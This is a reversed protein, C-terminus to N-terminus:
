IRRKNTRPPPSMWVSFGGVLLSLVGWFFFVWAGLFFGWFFFGGPGFFFFAGGLFCFFFGGFFLSFLCGGCLFGLFFFSLFVFVFFFFFFLFFFERRVFEPNAPPWKCPGSGKVTAQFADTAPPPPWSIGPNAISMRHLVGIKAGAHIYNGIGKSPRARRSRRQRLLTPPVPNHPPPPPSPPQHQPPTPPTSLTTHTHPPPPPPPSQRRALVVEPRRGLTERPKRRWTRRPMGDNWGGTSERLQKVLKHCQKGTEGGGVCFVGGRKETPNTGERQTVPVPDSKDSVTKTSAPEPRDAPGKRTCRCRRCIKTPSLSESMLAPEYFQSGHAARVGHYRGDPNADSVIKRLGHFGTRQHPSPRGELCPTPSRPPSCESPAALADDNGPIVYDVQQSRLQHRGCGSGSHGAQPGRVVALAEQESDIVFGTRLGNM